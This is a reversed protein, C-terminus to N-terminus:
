SGRKTWDVSSNRLIRFRRIQKTDLGDPSRFLMCNAGGATADAEVPHVRGSSDVFEVRIDEAAAEAHRSNVGIGIFVALGKRDLRDVVAGGM